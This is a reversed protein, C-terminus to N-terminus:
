NKLVATQIYSWDEVPACANFLNSCWCSWVFYILLHEHASNEYFFFATIFHFLTMRTWDSM